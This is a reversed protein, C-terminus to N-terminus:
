IKLIHFFLKAGGEVQRAGGMVIEIATFLATGVFGFFLRKIDM